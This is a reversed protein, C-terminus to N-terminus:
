GALKHWFLLLDGFLDLAGKNLQQAAFTLLDKTRGAFVRGVGWVSKFQDLEARVAPFPSLVFFCFLLYAPLRTPGQAQRPVM